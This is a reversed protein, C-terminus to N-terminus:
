YISAVSVPWSLMVLNELVYEPVETVVPCFPSISNIEQLFPWVQYRFEVLSKALNCWQYHWMINDSQVMALAGNCWHYHEM